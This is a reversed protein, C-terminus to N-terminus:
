QGFGLVVIEEESAAQLSDRISSCLAVQWLAHAPGDYSAVAAPAVGLRAKKDVDMAIRRPM